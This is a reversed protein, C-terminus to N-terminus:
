QVFYRTLLVADIPAFGTQARLEANLASKLRESLEQQGGAAAAVAVPFESLSALVLARLPMRREVLLKEGQEGRQTMLTVDLILARKPERFGHMIEDGLSVYRPKFPSEGEPPAPVLAPIHARAAEAAAAKAAAKKNADARAMRDAVILGVIVGMILLLAGYSAFAFPTTLKALVRGLM